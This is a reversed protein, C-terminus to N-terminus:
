PLQVGQKTTDRLTNRQVVWGDKITPHVAVFFDETDLRHDTHVDIVRIVIPVNSKKGGPKLQDHRTVLNLRFDKKRECLSEWTLCM